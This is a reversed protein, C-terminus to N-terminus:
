RGGPGPRRCGGGREPEWVLHHGRRPRADLGGQLPGRLVHGYDLLGGRLDSLASGECHLFQVLGTFNLYHQKAM